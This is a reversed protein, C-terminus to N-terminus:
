VGIDPYYGISDVVTTSRNAGIIISDGCLITSLTDQYCPYIDNRELISIVQGFQTEGISIGFFCPSACPQGSILGGDGIFRVDEITPLPTLTPTVPIQTSLETKQITCSVLIMMFLILPFPARNM